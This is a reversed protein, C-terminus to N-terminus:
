RFTLDCNLNVTFMFKPLVSDFRQGGGLYIDIGHAFFVVMEVDEFTKFTELM